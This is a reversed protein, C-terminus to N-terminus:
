SSFFSFTILIVTVCILIVILALQLNVFPPTAKDKRGFKFANFCDVFPALFVANKSTIPTEHKGLWPRTWVVWVFLLGLYSAIATWVLLNIM